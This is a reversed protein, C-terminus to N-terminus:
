FNYIIPHRSYPMTRKKKPHSKLYTFAKRKRAGSGRQGETGVLVAEPHATPPGPPPAAAPRDDVFRSAVQEAAAGLVAGLAPKIGSKLAQKVTTGQTLAEGGAKLLTQIGKVAVPRFFRYLGRLVDGFGQGYQYRQSGYFKPIDGRGSQSFAAKYLEVRLDM